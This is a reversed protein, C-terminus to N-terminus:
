YAAVPLWVSYIRLKMRNHICLKLKKTVADRLADLARQITQPQNSMDDVEM